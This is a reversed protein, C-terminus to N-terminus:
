ASERRVRAGHVYKPSAVSTVAFVIARAGHVYVISVVAVHFAWTTQAALRRGLGISIPVAGSPLEEGMPSLM